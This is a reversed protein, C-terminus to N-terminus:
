LLGALLKLAAHMITNFHIAKVRVFNCKVSPSLIWSCTYQHVICSQGHPRFLFDLRWLYYLLSDPQTQLLPNLLNINFCKFQFNFFSNIKDSLSQPSSCGQFFSSDDWLRSNSCAFLVFVCTLYVVIHNRKLKNKGSKSAFLNPM